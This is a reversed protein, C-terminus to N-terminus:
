MFKPNISCRQLLDTIIFGDIELLGTLEATKPYGAGIFDSIEEITIGRDKRIISHINKLLTLEGSPIRGAYHRELLVSSDTGKLQTRFTLGLSEVLSSASVIPEAIKQRILENCGQSRTDDIRGPLAYVDRNYSFALRCTMM